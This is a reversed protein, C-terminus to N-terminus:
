QSLEGIGASPRWRVNRAGVATRVGGRLLGRAPARDVLGRTRAGPPTRTNPSGPSGLPGGDQLLALVQLLTVVSTHGIVVPARDCAGHGFGRERHSAQLM